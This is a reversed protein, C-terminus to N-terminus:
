RLLEAQSVSRANHQHHAVYGPQLKVIHHRDSGLSTVPPLSLSVSHSVSLPSLSSHSLSLSLLLSLCPFLSFPSLCLPSLSMCTSLSLYFCHSVSLSPLSIDKYSLPFIPLPSLLFFLSSYCSWFLFFIYSFFHISFKNLFFHWLSCIKVM